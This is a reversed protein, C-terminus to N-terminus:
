LDCAGPAGLSRGSLGVCEAVSNLSTVREQTDTTIVADTVSTLQSMLWEPRFHKLIPPKSEPM